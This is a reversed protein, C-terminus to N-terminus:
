RGGERRKWGGILAGMALLALLWFGMNLAFLPYSRLEFASETAGIPLVCGLWLVAAIKMGRAATQPGTLQTFASICTALLVAALLATAAQLVQSVGDGALWARDRGIGRLWVDLFLTYWLALLVVNAAAAVGIALRNHRVCVSGM